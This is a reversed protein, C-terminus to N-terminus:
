ADHRVPEAKGYWGYEVPSPIHEHGLREEVYLARTPLGELERWVQWLHALFHKIMRRMAAMHQHAATWDPRNAAYYERASDYVARYPSSSKLFSTGVLYCVKKLRANYSLREGKRPREREGDFVAYGAYRWLASVTAAREIDILAVLQAALMPGIGKVRSVYEYIGYEKVAAKIDADAQKEVAAFHELWRQMMAETEGNGTDAARELAGVRNGFGIREKQMAERVDVLIRLKTDTM